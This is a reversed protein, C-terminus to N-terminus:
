QPFKPKVLPAHIRKTSHVTDLNQRPPRPFIKPSKKPTPPLATLSPPNISASRNYNWTGVPAETNTIVTGPDLPTGNEIVTSLPISPASQGYGAATGTLVLGASPKNFDTGNTTNWNWQSLITEAMAHTALFAILGLIAPFVFRRTRSPFAPLTSRSTPKTPSM